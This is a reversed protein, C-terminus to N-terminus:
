NTKWGDLCKSMCGRGEACREDLRGRTDPPPLKAAAPANAPTKGAAAEAAAGNAGGGAAGAAMKQRKQASGLAGLPTLGGPGPRPPMPAASPPSAARLPQHIGM